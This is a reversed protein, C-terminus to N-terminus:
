CPEFRVMLNILTKVLVSTPPHRVGRCFNCDSYEVAGASQAFLKYFFSKQKAKFFFEKILRNVRVYPNKSLSGVRTPHLELNIKELKGKLGTAM